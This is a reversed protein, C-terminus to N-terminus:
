KIHSTAYNKLITEGIVQRGRASFIDGAPPPDLPHISIREAKLKGAM